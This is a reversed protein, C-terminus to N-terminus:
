KLLVKAPMFCYCETCVKVINNFEPCQKCIKYRQKAYELTGEEVEKEQAERSAKVEPSQFLHKEPIPKGM